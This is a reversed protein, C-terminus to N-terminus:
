DWRLPAEEQRGKSLTQQGSHLQRAGSQFGHIEDDQPVESRALSRIWFRLQVLEIYGVMCDEGTPIMQLTGTKLV